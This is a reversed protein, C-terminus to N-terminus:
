AGDARRWLYEKDQTKMCNGFFGKKVDQAQSSLFLILESLNKETGANRLFDKLIMGEVM